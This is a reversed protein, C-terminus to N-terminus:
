FIRLWLLPQSIAVREGRWAMLGMLFGSFRSRVEHEGVRGIVDGEQISSGDILHAHPEFVGAAPSVVLREAAFLTEGEHAAVIRASLAEALADVEEPTQASHVEAGDVSRKTLGTLVSGPGLEVFTDAGAGALSNLVQTWRVPSCLQRSLLRAWDAGDEHLAADVNAAVPVHAETFWTAALAEDLPRQAGAMYPTHFAGSVAVPMVRKAGRAKLLEGATGIGEASGAIVVQGASNFNAVWVEHATGTGAARVEACCAEVTVDDAGLVAAMTGEHAACADRMARGRAAVLRAGDALPLVGSATLATYEGLSHGAVFSADLGLRRVADLVVLSATYTALQANDTRKLEDADADLLLHAVDCRAADSVARVVDWSPQDVWASGAGPKQSGQGPFTFAIM